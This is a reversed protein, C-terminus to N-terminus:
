LKKSVILSRLTGCLIVKNTVTLGNIPICAAYNEVCQMGAPTLWCSKTATCGNADTVVVSVNTVLYDVDKNPKVTLVSTEVNVPGSQTFDDLEYTWQYTYPALGNTIGGNPISFTVVNESVSAQISSIALQCTLVVVDDSCDEGENCIVLEVCKCYGLQEIYNELIADDVNKGKVGWSIQRLKELTLSTINCKAAM